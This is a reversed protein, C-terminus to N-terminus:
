CREVSKYGPQALESVSFSLVDDDLAAKTFGIGIAEVLESRFECSALNINDNCLTRRRRTRDFLCGADNGDDHYRHGVRDFVFQDSAKGPPAPIDGTSKKARLQDGLAELQKAFDHRLVRADSDEPMGAGIAIARHSAHELFGLM